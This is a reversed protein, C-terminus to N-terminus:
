ISIVLKWNLMQILSQSYNLNMRFDFNDIASSFKLQLPFGHPLWYDIASCWASCGSELPSHNHAKTYSRTVPRSASSKNVQLSTMSLVLAELSLSPYHISVISPVHYTNYWLFAVFISFRAFFVFNELSWNENWIWGYGNCDGGEGM